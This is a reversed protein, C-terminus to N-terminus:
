NVCVVDAAIFTCLVSSNDVCEEKEEEHAKDQLYRRKQLSGSASSRNESLRVVHGYYQRAYLM